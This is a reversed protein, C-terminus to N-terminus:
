ISEKSARRSMVSAGSDADGTEQTVDPVPRVVYFCRNRHIQRALSRKSPTPTGHLPKTTM